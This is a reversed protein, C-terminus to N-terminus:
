MYASLFFVNTKHLEVANTNLFKNTFLQSYEHVRKCIDVSVRYGKIKRLSFGTVEMSGHRHPHRSVAAHADTCKWMAVQPNGVYMYVCSIKMFIYAAQTTYVM